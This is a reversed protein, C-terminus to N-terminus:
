CRFLPLGESGCQLARRAPAKGIILGLSPPSTENALPTKPLSGASLPRFQRLPGQEAVEIMKQSREVKRYAKEVLIAVQNGRIRCSGRTDCILRPPRAVAEFAFETVLRTLHDPQAQVDASGQRLYVVGDLTYLPAEGRAVSIKVIIMGRMEEFGVQIPPTPMICTRALQHIKRGLRDRQKSDLDLGKV